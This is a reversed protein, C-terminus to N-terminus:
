RALSELAAHLQDLYAAYMEYKPDIPDAALFRRLFPAALRKQAAVIGADRPAPALLAAQEVERMGADFKRWYLRLALTAAIGRDFKSERQARTVARASAPLRAELELPLWAGFFRLGLQTRELAIIEAYGPALRRLEALRARFHVREAEPALSLAETCAPMVARSPGLTPLMAELGELRLWATTLALVDACRELAAAPAGRALDERLALPALTTLSETLRPMSQRRGHRLDPFPGVGPAPAVTSLRGCALTRALWAGHEALAARMPETLPGAGNAAALVDPSTWPLTRSLDPSVDAELGACEFVEGRPGTLEFRRAELAAADQVLGEGLKTAQRALVLWGALLLGVIAGLVTLVARRM